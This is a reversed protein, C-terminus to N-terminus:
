SHGSKKYPSLALLPLKTHFILSKSESIGFLKEFLGKKRPLVVLLDINQKEAFLEIGTEIDKDVMFHYQHPLDRLYLELNKAEAAKDKELITKESVHVVHVKAGFVNRIIKLPNLLEAMIGKYDSSLAINEIGKFEAKEPIVLVPALQEKIMRHANTGLIVEDIGHAGKTGMIILDISQTLCISLAADILYDHAKVTTYNLEKLEPVRKELKQFEEEIFKKINTENEGLDYSINLDTYALPVTYANLIIIESTNTRKALRAAYRLANISCDSFDTPVLIRKIM